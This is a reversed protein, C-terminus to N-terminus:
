NLLKVNDTLGSSDALERVATPNETKSVIGLVQAKVKYGDIVVKGLEAITKATEVDIKENESANTDSNNKLMEITEVLHLNIDDISIRKM